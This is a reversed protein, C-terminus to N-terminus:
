QDLPHGCAKCYRDSRGVRQGCQPCCAQQRRSTSKETVWSMGTGPISVTKRVRGNPGIGVRLGKVGISAGIGSKSLNIRILKGLRISKRFRFGM